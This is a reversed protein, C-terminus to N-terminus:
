RAKRNQQRGGAAVLANIEAVIAEYAQSAPASHSFEGGRYVLVKDDGGAVGADATRCEGPGNVSCGMIAITLPLEVDRLYEKVRAAIGPVDLRTRGCTPCSIINPMTSPQGLSRLIERGADVEALPDGSLSVRITDGIGLHLLVGIGIANRVLGTSPPGAETVGVHLPYAIRRAIQTYAEITTPVDSAKLSLKILGFDMSELIHVQEEALATMRMSLPEGPRYDVPLSGANVGIRIPIEREKARAVVRALHERRRINGPNLRLGDIGADLAALALRHDFHIDAVLPVPSGARIAALANAAEMDPVALRVIDCGARALAQVQAATATVDRTDTKTMSQVSIPSDGGVVVSGIRIAISHRRANM